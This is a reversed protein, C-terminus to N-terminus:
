TQENSINPNAAFFQQLQQDTIKGPTYQGPTYDTVTGDVPMTTIPNVIDRAQSLVEDSVGNSQALAVLDEYSLQPNAAIYDAVEKVTYAM